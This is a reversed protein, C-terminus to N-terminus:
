FDTRVITPTVLIILDRQIQQERTTKFLGGLLPLDMLVPIGAVAETRETQTLGGIVVTKGASNKNRHGNGSAIVVPAVSSQTLITPSAGLASAPAAAAGAIAAGSKVFERRSFKKSM